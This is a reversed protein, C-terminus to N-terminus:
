VGDSSGESAFMRGTRGCGTFIEDAVILGGAKRTDTLYQEMHSRFPLRNGATAQLPEYFLAAINAVKDVESTDG